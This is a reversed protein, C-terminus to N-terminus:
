RYFINGGFQGRASLTAFWGPVMSAAHFFLAGNTIDEGRNVMLELSISRMKALEAPENYQDNPIADCRYSFQCSGNYRQDIVGCVSAPFRTDAARNLIVEGVAREGEYTTGRAEFYLAESMCDVDASTYGSSSLTAEMPSIQACATALTLLLLTIKSRFFM